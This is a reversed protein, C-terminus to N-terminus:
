PLVGGLHQKKRSRMRSCRQGQHFALHKFPLDTLRHAIAKDSASDPKPLSHGVSHARLSAAPSTARRIQSTDHIQNNGIPRRQSSTSRSQQLGVVLVALEGVTSRL